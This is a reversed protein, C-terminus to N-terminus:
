DQGFEYRLEYLHGSKVMTTAEVPRDGHTLVVRLTHLVPTEGTLQLLGYQEQTPTRASVRDVCLLPPHGLEALLTPTGGEIRRRATLATGSAVALPCYSRVLEAPEDDLTLLQVREVVLEGEPLGLVAAVDAPPSVEGVALLRSAGRVGSKAAESTWRYPEGPSAPAMCDAPRVARQRHERVTVSSGARGVLLGENELLQLAKQVTANSADFRERLRVTSPVRGGAPLQGSLIESRLDAAIRSHLARGDVGDAGRGTGTM